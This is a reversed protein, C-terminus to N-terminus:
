QQSVNISMASGEGFRTNGVVEGRQGLGEVSRSPLTELAQVEDVVGGDAATSAVWQGVDHEPEKELENKTAATLSENVSAQANTNVDISGGGRKNGLVGGGAEYKVVDRVNVVISQETGSGRRLGQEVLKGGPDANNDVLTCQM